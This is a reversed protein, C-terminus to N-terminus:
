IIKVFDDIIEVVCFNAGNSGGDIHEYRFDFKICIGNDRWGMGYNEITVKKFAKAMIGCQNRYDKRDVIAFYTEGRYNQKEEIQLSTKVGLLASVVTNLQELNRELYERQEMVNNKLDM